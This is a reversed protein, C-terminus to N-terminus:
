HAEDWNKGFNGEVVIPLDLKIAREMEKKALKFIDDKENKHVEFVLEDHVQMILSSKYKKKQLEEHIKIMAIKIMDASTGQVPSNIAVRKAAEAIQKNKSNIDPLFRRRGTITEVYGQKQCVKVIDDMYKRVGSYEAFYRDIFDKAEQRPIKMNGSLGFATVGYIVSFNVIKAKNRMEPTVDEENCGFIAAATQRHIDKDNKYAAIMKKDGSFHAMIRLEIQSYDLSLLEFGTEPIFGQRIMRGEEDKIPINQLNPNTSSLRGTAAITQNYSTHIRGTKSNILLPLTDVYTSKLKAFKRHNLLDDIIPHTGQLDELVSHDTSFGTKTKKLTPLGIKEFLIEQLAKTSAINFESGAYKHISKELSYIKKEFKKSLDQFYDADIKVGEREVALLVPILPIEIEHFIKTAGAEPLKKELIHYLQLTIDADECAYEAVTEPDIESLNKKNKGTGALESFTITKYQLHDEAMDDMNHRRAGSRILYSAIMTDFYVPKIETNENKFIIMDYKINQGVKKVKPSNLLPSLIDLVENKNICKGSFLSVDSTVPIYYAEHAKASLSIGLIVASMPDESTTETDVSLIETKSLDKVIKKLEELDTVLKYEHKVTKISSLNSPMSAEESIIADSADSKKALDQYIANLGYEKFKEINNNHLFDPIVLEEIGLKIPLDLHLTALDRSLFANEKNEALKKKISPNKIKELNKYINELNGYEAILKTASKDGVGKVGPINDSTDGTLGMYDTIQHPDIGLENKVWGSDIKTFESVGKKGRFLFVKSNLLQYLDKDGSFILLEDFNNKYKSCLTGIIDDAEHGNEILVPFKLYELFEIVKRIQPRLDEPMPSRTAKYDKFKESRVLPTGPDFTIAIHSPQFDALLKFLMRFFGFVAGTPEGSPNRLDANAFAYFARFVFAHGDIILLKKM